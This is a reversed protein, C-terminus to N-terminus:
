CSIGSEGSSFASRQFGEFGAAEVGIDYTAPPLLPVLYEGQGNSDTTRALGTQPSTVTIKAGAIAGGNPDTVTGVFSGTTQGLASGPAFIVTFLSALFYALLTVRRM